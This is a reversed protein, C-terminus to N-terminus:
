WPEHGSKNLFEIDNGWPRCAMDSDGPTSVQKEVSSGLNAMRGVRPCCMSQHMIRALSTQKKAKNITQPVQKTHTDRGAEPRAQDAMSHLAMWSSHM